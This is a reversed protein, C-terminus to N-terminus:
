TSGATVRARLPFRITFQTGKGEESEVGLTGGYKAVIRYVISLGLGTGKGPEKTTFFPDFIKHLMAKPIGCGTDDIRVVVQEQEVATSLTLRGRGNMAQVANNILNIFLQDIEAKRTRLLPVPEFATVVEVYGFHPGRRVMKVAEALREHLDVECEGDRSTVRTYSAFDRVVGSVHKAYGIIDSAYERVKEMEREELLLEAMGLIAQVPNNIEHAMGSVMTGLSALKEAQLLHDQIQREETVDWVIMGTRPPEGARLVLPFLRYRYVRKDAEFEPDPPRPKGAGVAALERDLRERAPPPLKLADHLRRRVLTARHHGGFYQVALANAYVIEQRGDVILIAGPLSALIKETEEYARVLAQAAQKREVFQGIKLGIDAMMKLLTGDPERVAHSFFEIVGHIHGGVRIPFAFAAHLGVRAAARARPFNPDNVVDLVWATDGAAWVRGPLGVGPPLATARSLAAFEDLGADPKQWITECRLARARHDVLWLLGIEWEATECVAQLIHPAADELTEAAALVHSVALQTQQLSGARKRESIDKFVVVAGVLSGDEHVPTSVYEVPFRTGDKRWFIENHVQHVAGDKLAAYIPCTELPYPSGDAHSHHVVDHMPRDLLDAIEWGLMRAAAPNIFTTRGERDLGYIGDGASDLLLQNHRSLRRLADEARKRESIDRIIGSYYTGDPTTWSALSLELPLERGSQTLGTFELTKGLLPSRGTRELQALAAEYSPRYRAPMLITLPRGLADQKSYGFLREAAQNWSIIHGRHDALVIADTASEVLTRFRAESARLAQEVHEARVELGKVSFVRRLIAKVEGSDYPKTLYAFAGRTLSGSRTEMTGHATIVVIPLNPDLETLVKLVSLGDLDPLQMDLIAAGYRKQKVLRIAEAGHGISEVAYGEHILMDSLSDRIDPNDDVILVSPVPM